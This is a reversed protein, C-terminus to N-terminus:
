RNQSRYKKRAGYVMGLGTLGLLMTAPEPNHTTSLPQFGYRISQFDWYTPTQADGPFRSLLVTALGYGTLDLPQNSITFRGRFSFPTEISAFDGSSPAIVSSMFRVDGYDDTNVRGVPVANATGNVALGTWYGSLDIEMGPSSKMPDLRWASFIGDIAAVSGDFQFGGDGSLSLSGAGRWDMSLSGATIQEAKVPSALMLFAIALTALTKM